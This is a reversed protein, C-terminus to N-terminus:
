YLSVNIREAIDLLSNIEELATESLENQIKIEFLQDMVLELKQKLNNKDENKLDLSRKKLLKNLLGLLSKYEGKKDGRLATLIIASLDLNYEVVKQEVALEDLNVNKMKIVKRGSLNSKDGM